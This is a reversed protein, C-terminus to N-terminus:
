RKWNFASYVKSYIEDGKEGGCERKGGGRGEVVSRRMVVNNVRAEDAGHYPKIAEEEKERERKRKNREAERERERQSQALSHM